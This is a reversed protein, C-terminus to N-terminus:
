LPRRKSSAAQTTTVHLWQMGGAHAGREGEREREGTERGGERERKEREEARGTGSDRWRACACPM